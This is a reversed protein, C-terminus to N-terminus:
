FRLKECTFNHRKHSSISRFIRRVAMFRAPWLSNAPQLLCTWVFPRRLEAQYSSQAAALRPSMTISHPLLATAIQVEPEERTVDLTFIFVEEEKGKERSWGAQSASVNPTSVRNMQVFIYTGTVVLLAVIGLVILRGPLNRSTNGYRRALRKDSATSSEAM